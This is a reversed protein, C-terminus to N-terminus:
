ETEAPKYKDSFRFDSYSVHFGIDNIFEDYARKDAESAYEYFVEIELEGSRGLLDKTVNTQDDVTEYSEQEAVYAEPSEAYVEPIDVDVEIPSESILTELDKEEGPVFNDAPEDTTDNTSTIEVAIDAGETANLLALELRLLEKNLHLTEQRLNETEERSVKLNDLLVENELRLDRIQNENSNDNAPSQSAAVAVSTDSGTSTETANVGTKTANLFAPNDTSLLLGVTVLSVLVAAIRRVPKRNNSKPVNPATDPTLVPQSQPETSRQTKSCYDYIASIWQPTLTRM